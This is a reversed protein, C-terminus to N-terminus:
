KLLKEMEETTMNAVDGTVNDDDESPTTGPAPLYKATRLGATAASALARCTASIDRDTPNKLALEAVRRLVREWYFVPHEDKGPDTDGDLTKRWYDARLEAEKEDKRYESHKKGGLQYKIEFGAPHKWKGIFHDHDKKKM